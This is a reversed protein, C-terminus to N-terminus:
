KSDYNIKGLCKEIVARLEGPTFPKPLFPRGSAEIFIQTNGSGTDGTSFVVKRAKLPYKGTLWIYLEDGTMVPMRIDLFILDYENKDLMERAVLGNSALEVGFGMDGLVRQFIKAIAPEDECIFVRGIAVKHKLREDTEV